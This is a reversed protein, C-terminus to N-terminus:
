RSTREPPNRTSHRRWGRDACSPVHELALTRPGEPRGAPGSRGVSGDSPGFHVSGVINMTPSPTPTIARRPICGCADCVPATWRDLAVLDRWPWRARVRTCRRRSSRAPPRSRSRRAARTGTLIELVTLPRTIRLATRPASTAGMGGRGGGAIRDSSAARSGVALGGSSTSPQLDQRQLTAEVRCGVNRSTSILAV